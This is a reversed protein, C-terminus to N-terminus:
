THEIMHPTCSHSINNFFNYKTLFLTVFWAASKLKDDIEDDRVKCIKVFKYMEKVFFRISIKLLEKSRVSV